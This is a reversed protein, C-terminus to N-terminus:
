QSFYLYVKYFDCYDNFCDLKPNTAFPVANTRIFEPIYDFSLPQTRQYILM